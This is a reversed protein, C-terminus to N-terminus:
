EWACLMAHINLWHIEKNGVNIIHSTPKYSIISAKIKYKGTPINKFVFEGNFDTYTTKTLGESQIVVEVGVLLEGTAKDTVKGAIDSAVVNLAFLTLFFSLIITKM